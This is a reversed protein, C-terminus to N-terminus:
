IVNFVFVLEGRLFGFRESVMEIMLDVEFDDLSELLTIRIIKCVCNWASM